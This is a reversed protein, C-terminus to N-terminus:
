IQEMSNAARMVIWIAWDIVGAAYGLGSAYQRLNREHEEYSRLYSLGTPPKDCLGTLVMYRITHRDLVAMDHSIGINRLFMSAQKPGLGPVNQVLWKRTGLPSTGMNIMASVSGFRDHVIDWAGVLQGARMRPFRYRRVKCGIEIPESLLGALYTDFHRPSDARLYELVCSKDLHQTAAVAMEYSVQSSLICRVLENWLSREDRQRATGVKRLQDEVEDAIQFVTDALLQPSLARM